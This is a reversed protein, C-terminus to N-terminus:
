KNNSEGLNGGDNRASSSASSQIAQMERQLLQAQTPASKKRPSPHSVGMMGEMSANIRDAQEASNIDFAADGPARVRVQQEIAREEVSAPSVDLTQVADESETVGHAVVICGLALLIAVRWDRMTRGQIGM